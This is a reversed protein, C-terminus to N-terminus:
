VAYIIRYSLKLYLVKKNLEIVQTFMYFWQKGLTDLHGKVVRCMQSMLESTQHDLDSIISVEM